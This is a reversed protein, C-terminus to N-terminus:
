GKFLIDFPSPTTYKSCSCSCSCSCAMAHCQGPKRFVGFFLPARCGEGKDPKWRRGSQGEHRAKCGRLGQMRACYHAVVCLACGECQDASRGSSEIALVLAVVVDVVVDVVVAVVVDAVVVVDVVVVVVM